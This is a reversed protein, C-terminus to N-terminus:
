SPPMGSQSTNIRILAQLMRKSEGPRDRAKRGDVPEVQQLEIWM